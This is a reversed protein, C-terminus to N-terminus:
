FVTMKDFYSFFSTCQSCIYISFNNMQHELTSKELFSNAHLLKWNQKEFIPLNFSKM